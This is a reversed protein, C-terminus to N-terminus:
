LKDVGSKIEEFIEPSDILDYTIGYDQYLGVLEIHVDMRFKRDLDRVGDDVQFDFIDPDLLYIKHYGKVYNGIFHLEGRNFGGLVRAYAATDMITRDTVVLPYRLSLDLERKIQSAIIWYQSMESAGKNIPLPCERAVEDLVCVNKGVVKCQTAYEYAKSTKSTGHTGSFAIIKSM